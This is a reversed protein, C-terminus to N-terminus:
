EILEEPRTWTHGYVDWMRVIGVDKRMVFGVSPDDGRSFSFEQQHIIDYPINSPSYYIDKNFALIIEGYPHDLYEDEYHFNSCSFELHIKRTSNGFDVYCVIDHITEVEDWEHFYWDERRVSSWVCFKEIEGTERVFSVSDGEIYNGTLCAEVFDSMIFLEQRLREEESNSLGRECSTFLGLIVVLLPVVSLLTIRKM